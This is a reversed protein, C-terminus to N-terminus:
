KDSEVASYIGGLELLVPEMARYYADESMTKKKLRLIELKMELADRLKRQEPSLKAETGRRILFVQNAAFGDPEGKKSRKVVRTGKFWDAPTGLGDSNDDIMALETALRTEQIYFEQTRASAGLYAELLSTQQDKDIDLSPDAIAESLYGGFRSFNQQAANKTATIVVRDKSKLKSVFSGSASSCNIVITRCPLPALWDKLQKASVDPGTLNFKSNKRDDTGHGILVVWLEGINKPTNEIETKLRDFDSQALSDSAKEVGIQAFGIKSEPASKVATKWNEAWTLFRDGFEEEGPAGVVVIVKQEQALAFSPLLGISVLLTSVLLRSVTTMIM